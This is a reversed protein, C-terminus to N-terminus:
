PIRGENRQKFIEMWRKLLAEDTCMFQWEPHDIDAVKVFFGSSLGARLRANQNNAAAQFHMGTAAAGGGYIQTQDYGEISWRWNRVDAWPIRAAIGHDMVYVIGKGYAIGTGTIKKGGHRRSGAVQAHFHAVDNGVFKRFGANARENMAAIGLQRAILGVVIVGVLPAGAAVFGRTLVAFAIVGGIWLIAKLLFPTPSRTGVIKEVHIAM